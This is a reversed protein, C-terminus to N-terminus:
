AGGAVWSSWLVVASCELVGGCCVVACGCCLVVPGGGAGAGRAGAGTGGAVAGASTDMRDDRRGDSTIFEPVEPLPVGPDLIECDDLENRWDVCKLGVRHLAIVAHQLAKLHTPALRYLDAHTGEIFPM